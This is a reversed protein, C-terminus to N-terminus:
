ASDFGLVPVRRRRSGGVVGALRERQEEPDEKKKLMPSQKLVAVAAYFFLPALRSKWKLMETPSLIFGNAASRDADGYIGSSLQAGSRLGSDAQITTQASATGDNTMLRVFFDTFSIAM